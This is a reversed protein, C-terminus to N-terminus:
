AGPRLNKLPLDGHKPDAHLQVWASASREQQKQRQEALLNSVFSYGVCIAAILAALAM